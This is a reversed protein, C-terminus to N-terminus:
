PATSSRISIRPLLMKGGLELCHPISSLCMEHCDRCAKLCEQMSASMEAAAARSHNATHQM